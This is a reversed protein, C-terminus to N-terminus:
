AIPLWNEIKGHWYRFEKGEIEWAVEAQMPILRGNVPQYDWFRGHWPYRKGTEGYTRSAASATAILGADDLGLIIEARSAGAGTAVIITHPDGMTWELAHDVLITDPNLPLEALYRLAEGQNTAATGDIEAVRIVGFLRAELLGCGEVFSDVVWTAGLPGIKARWVFGSSSTGTRQNATFHQPSADPKFWMTGSQRLDVYRAPHKRSAGLREALASVEPPLDTRLKAVVPANALRQDLADLRENFRKRAMYGLTLGVSGSFAAVASLM